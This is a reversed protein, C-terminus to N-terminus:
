KKLPLIAATLGLVLTQIDEPTYTQEGNILSYSFTTSVNNSIHLVLTASLKSETTGSPVNTFEEGMKTSFESAAYRLIYEGTLDFRKSIDLQINLGGDFFTGSKDFVVTPNLSYNSLRTILGVNNVHLIRREKKDSIKYTFNFWVGWRQFAAANSVNRDEFDFSAATAFEIFLGKRLDLNYVAPDVWPNGNNLKDLIKKLELIIEEKKYLLNQTIEIIETSYKWEKKYQSFVQGETLIKGSDIAQILINLSNIQKMRNAETYTKTIKPEFLLTRYGIGVRSYLSSDSAMLDNSAISIKSSRGILKWFKRNYNTELYDYLTRKKSSFFYPQFEIALNSPIIGDNSVLPAIITTEFGSYDGPKTIETTQNGIINLAPYNPVTIEVDSDSQALISSALVSLLVTCFLKINKM